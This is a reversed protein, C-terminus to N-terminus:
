RKSSAFRGGSIAAPECDQRLSLSLPSPIPSSATPSRSRGAAPSQDARSSAAPPWIATATTGSPSPKPPSTAPANSSRRASMHTNATAMVPASADRKPESRAIAGDAQAQGPQSKAAAGAVSENASSGRASEADKAWPRSAPPPPAREIRQQAIWRDDRETFVAVGIVGVNAPRGTQAAYSDPLSTFNFQAVEDLNKRWGNIETSEWADLVYGSQNASATEGSVANVGDVSLVPSCAAM